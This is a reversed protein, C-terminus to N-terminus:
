PATEVIQPIGAFVSYTMRRLRIRRLTRFQRSETHMSIRRNTSISHAGDTKRTLHDSTDRGCQGPHLSHGSVGGCTGVGRTSENKAALFAARKNEEKVEQPTTGFTCRRLGARLCWLRPMSKSYRTTATGGASGTLQM